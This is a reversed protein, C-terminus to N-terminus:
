YSKSKFLEECVNSEVIEIDEKTVPMDWFLKLDREINEVAMEQQFEALSVHTCVVKKSNVKGATESGMIIWGLRTNQLLLGGHIFIGELFLESAINAGLLIPVHSPQGCFSDALPKGFGSLARFNNPISPLKRTVRKVVYANIELVRREPFKVEVKLTTMSRVKGTTEGGVGAINIDCRTKKLRLSQVTQEEVYSAQSCVDILVRRDINYDRGLIKGVATPLIVGGNNISNENACLYSNATPAEIQKGHLVTM